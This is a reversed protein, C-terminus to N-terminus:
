PADEKPTQERPPVLHPARAFTFDIERKFSKRLSDLKGSFAKDLQRYGHIALIQLRVDYFQIDL